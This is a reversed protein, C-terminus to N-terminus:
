CSIEMQSVEQMTEKFSKEETYFSKQIQFKLVIEGARLFKRLQGKLLKGVDTFRGATDRKPIREEKQLCKQPTELLVRDTARLFKSLQGKLM